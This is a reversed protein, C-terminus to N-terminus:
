EQVEGQEKRATIGTFITSNWGRWLRRTLSLWGTEPWCPMVVLSFGSLISTVEWHGFLALCKTQIIPQWTQSNKSHKLRRSCHFGIKPAIGSPRLLYATQPGVEPLTYSVTQLSYRLSAHPPELPALLCFQVILLVRNEYTEVVENWRSGLQEVGGLDWSMELFSSDEAWNGGAAENGKMWGDERAERSPETQPPVVVPGGLTWRLVQWKKQPPPTPTWRNFPQTNKTQFSVQLDSHNNNNVLSSHLKYWAEYWFIVPNWKEARRLQSGRPTGLTFIMFQSYSFFPRSIYSFMRSCCLSSAISPESCPVPSCRDSAIKHM